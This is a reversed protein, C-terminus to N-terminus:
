DLFGNEVAYKVLGATNKVQLKSLLNRRHTNVTNQSIFAKESIEITTYGQAILRLIEKERKSLETVSQREKKLKGENEKQRRIIEASFFSAGSYVQDIARYMERKETNKLLYGDVGIRILRSIMQVNNHTSIILIKVEPYKKKIVKSVEIGDMEPMGIDLIIMDVVEKELLFLLEKGNTATGRIDINEKGKILSTIGQLFLVHDDVILIKIKKM